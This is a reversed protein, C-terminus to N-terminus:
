GIDNITVIHQHRQDLFPDFLGLNGGFSIENLLQGQIDITVLNNVVQVFVYKTLKKVVQIVVHNYMSHKGRSTKLM